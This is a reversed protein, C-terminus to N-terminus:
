LQAAARRLMPATAAVPLRARVIVTFCPMDGADANIIISTGGADSTDASIHDSDVAAARVPDAVGAHTWALQRKEMFSLICDKCLKDGCVRRSQKTERDPEGALTSLCVIEHM